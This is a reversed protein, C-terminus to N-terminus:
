GLLPCSGVLWSRCGAFWGSLRPVVVPARSGEQAFSALCALHSEVFVSGKMSWWRQSHGRLSAMKQWAQPRMAVSGKIIIGRYGPVADVKMM